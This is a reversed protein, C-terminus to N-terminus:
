LRRSRIKRKHSNIIPPTFFFFGHSRRLIFILYFICFPFVTSPFFTQNACKKLICKIHALSLRYIRGLAEKFYFFLLFFFVTFLNETDTLILFFFYPCIVKNSLGSFFREQPSENFTYELSIVFEKRM